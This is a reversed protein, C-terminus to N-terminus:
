DARRRPYVGSGPHSRRGTRGLTSEETNSPTHDHRALFRPPLVPALQCFRYVYGERETRPVGLIPGGLIDAWYYRLSNSLFHSQQEFMVLDVGIVLVTPLM